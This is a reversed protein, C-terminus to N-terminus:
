SATAWKAAQKLATVKERLFVAEREQHLQDFLEARHEMNRILEVAHESQVSEWVKGAQSLERIAERYHGTNEEIEALTEYTAALRAGRTRKFTGCAEM